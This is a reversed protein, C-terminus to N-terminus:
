AKNYNQQTQLKAKEIGEEVPQLYNKKYNDIMQKPMVIEFTQQQPMTPHIGRITANGCSEAILNLRLQESSVDANGTPSKGHIYHGTLDENFIIISINAVSCLDVFDVYAPPDVMAFLMQFGYQVVGIGFIISVTVFFQFAYNEPSDSPESNLDSNMLAWNKYGFGEVVVLFLLLIIESNIHKSGQLENFENVIYL